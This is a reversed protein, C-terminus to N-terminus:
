PKQTKRGASGLMNHIADAFVRAMKGAGAANPHAGHLAALPAVLLVALINATRKKMNDPHSLSQSMPGGHTTHGQCFGHCDGAGPRTTEAKVASAKWNRCTETFLHSAAEMGCGPSDSIRATGDPLISSTVFGDPPAPNFRWTGGLDLHPEKVGAVLQPRPSLRPLDGDARAIGAVLGYLMLGVTLIRKM